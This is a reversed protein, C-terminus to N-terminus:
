SSNSRVNFYTRCYSESLHNNRDFAIQANKKMSTSLRKQFEDCTKKPCSTPLLNQYVEMSKNELNSIMEVLDVQEVPLIDSTETCTWLSSMDQKFSSLVVEM